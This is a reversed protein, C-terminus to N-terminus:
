VKERLEKHLDLATRYDIQIIEESPADLDVYERISRPDPYIGHPPNTPKFRDLQPRGSIKRRGGSSGGRYNQQLSPSFYNSSQPSNFFPMGSGGMQYSDIQTLPSPWAGYNNRGRMPTNRNGASQQNSLMSPSPNIRKPDSCYNEFFQQELSKKKTELIKEPHKLGIHKKVFNEAMFLKNCLGCRYKEDDLKIIYKKYLKEMKAELRIKGTYLDPNDPNHIRNKIKTDLSIAWQDTTVELAMDSDKKRGRLHKECKRNLEDEDDYEEGCYYCFYHVKRLYMIIRDLQEVASLGLTLVPNEEIGKEKDLQMCLLKSQELDIKIRADESAVPPTLKPLKAPLSTKNISLHLEFQEKLKTKGVMERLAISCAESSELTVWGLRNYNKYRMPESMTLKRFGSVKKFIELIENRSIFPPIVKIFLVNSESESKQSSTLLSKGNEETPKIETNQKDNEEADKEDSKELDITGEEKEEKEDGIKMIAERLSNETDEGANLNFEITGNRLCESFSKVNQKSIQIQEERKVELYGPEYKEKFWEDNKHENFFVRLQRRKYENQYEEYRKEGEAPTISEEQIELFQKYTKIPGEFLAANNRIGKSARSKAGSYYDNIPEAPRDYPDRERDRKELERDRERERERLDYEDYSSVWSRGTRGGRRGRDDERGDWDEERKRRKFPPSERRKESTNEDRFRRNDRQYNHDRESPNRRGFPEEHRTNKRSRDPSNYRERKYNGESGLVERELERERRDVEERERKFKDRRIERREDDSDGHAPSAHEM